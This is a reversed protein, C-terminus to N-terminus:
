SSLIVVQKVKRFETPDIIHLEMHGDVLQLSYSGAPQGSILRAKATPTM